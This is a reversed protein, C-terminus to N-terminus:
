QINESSTQDFTTPVPSPPQSVTGSKSQETSYPKKLLFESVWRAMRRNQKEEGTIPYFITVVVIGM